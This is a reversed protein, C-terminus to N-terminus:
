LHLHRVGSSPSLHEGGHNKKMIYFYLFINKILCVNMNIYSGGERLQINEYISNSLYEINM